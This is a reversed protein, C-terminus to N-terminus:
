SFVLRKSKGIPKAACCYALRGRALRLDMIDKLIYILKTFATPM